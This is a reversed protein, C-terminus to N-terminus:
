QRCARFDAYDGQASSGTDDSDTLVAIGAPKPVEKGAFYQLYDDRVNVRVEVWQGMGDAGSRLVRVQTLGNNSSLRTGVPVKESWIYKVARPGRVRSYDVLMYVALASDNKGHQEDAGRPLERPRWSWTLIPYARLDWEFQKAAQIGHGKAHGRLFRRGGEEQVRYAEKGADKRVQWAPPFEGVNAKAFDEIVVCDGGGQPAAQAAGAAVMAVLTTGVLGSLTAGTL